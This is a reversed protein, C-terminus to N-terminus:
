GLKYELQYDNKDMAYLEEDIEVAEVCGLKFYFAITDESSGACIYLKEASFEKALGCGLAFLQKGIGKSRYSKSIFLQDLLVYRSSQGFIDANVVVYGVLVGKDFCGIARGGKSLSIKFHEIHWSVGNPLEYDTWDIVVLERKGNVERWAKHIYCSGDIERIKEADQINLEKYVM